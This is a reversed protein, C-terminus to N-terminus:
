SRRRGATFIAKKAESDADEASYFGGDQHTMDRLVYRLIDRVVHRRAQMAASSIRTSTFSRWNHTTTSCREFHPVLWPCRCLVAFVGRNSRLHRWGGDKQLHAVGHASRRRGKGRARPQPSFRPLSPTPFKPRAAWGGNKSITVRSFSYGPAKCRSKNLVFHNTAARATMEALQEHLKLASNQIDNTKTQWASRNTAASAPLQAPWIEIGAPWYTGGFFRSANPRSSLRQAALRGLRDHGARLDHLDQGRGPAGRSEVKISVFHENLFAALEEREFSEREMVHCWHCTSYGISLFIPKNERAGIRSRRTAGPSGTWPNHAHQLLYPSKESALREHAQTGTPQTSTPSMSTAKPQNRQCGTVSLLLIVGDLCRTDKLFM